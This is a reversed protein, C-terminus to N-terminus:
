ATVGLSQYFFFALALIVSAKFNSGSTKAVNRTSNCTLLAFM